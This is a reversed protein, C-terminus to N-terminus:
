EEILTLQLLKEGERGREDTISEVTQHSVLGNRQKAQKM